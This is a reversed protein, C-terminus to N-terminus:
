LVARAYVIFMEKQCDASCIPAAIYIGGKSFFRYPQHSKLSTKADPLIVDKSAMQRYSIIDPRPLWDHSAYKLSGDVIQQYALGHKKVVAGITSGNGSQFANIVATNNLLSNYTRSSQLRIAWNVLIIGM